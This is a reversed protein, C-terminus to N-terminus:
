KIILDIETQLASNYQKIPDWTLYAPDIEGRGAKEELKIMRDFVKDNALGVQNEDGAYFSALNRLAAKNVSLMKLKFEQDKKKSTEMGRLADRLEKAKDRKQARQKKGAEQLQKGAYQAKMRDYLSQTETKQLEEKAKREALETKLKTITDQKQRESMPRKYGRLLNGGGWADALAILPSLDIQSEMGQYREIAQEIPSVDMGPPQRPEPFSFSPLGMEAPGQGLATVLGLIQGQQYQNQEALGQIAEREGRYPVVGAPLPPGPPPPAPQPPTKAMAERRRRAIELDDMIPDLRRPEPPRPIPKAASLMAASGWDGMYDNAM